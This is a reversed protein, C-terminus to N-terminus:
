PFFHLSSMANGLRALVEAGLPVEQKLALIHSNGRVIKKRRKAKVLCKLRINLGLPPPKKSYFVDFWVSALLSVKCVPNHLQLYIGGGRRGFPAAQAGRRRGPTDVRTLGAAAMQCLAPSTRCPRSAGGSGGPEAHRGRDPPVPLDRGASGGTGASAGGATGPPRSPHIPLAAKTGGGPAAGPKKASQDARPQMNRDSEGGEGEGKSTDRPSPGRRCLRARPQSIGQPGRRRGSERRREGSGEEGGGGRAKEGRGTGERLFAPPPLPSTVEM